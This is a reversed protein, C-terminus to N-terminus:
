PRGRNERSFVEEVVLILWVEGGEVDPVLDAEVPTNLLAM